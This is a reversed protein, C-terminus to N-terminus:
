PATTVDQIFSWYGKLYTRVEGAADTVQLDYAYNDAVLNWSNIVPFQIVGNPLITLQNEGTLLNSFEYAVKNGTKLQMRIISGTLYIPNGTEPYKLTIRITGLADGRYHPPFDFPAPNNM